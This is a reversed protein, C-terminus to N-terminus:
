FVVEPQTVVIFREDLHPWLIKKVGDEGDWPLRGNGCGPRPMAVRKWGMEDTLGQLEVVSQAILIRDAEERWHHKVPFTVLSFKPSEIVTRLMSVLADAPKETISVIELLAADTGDLLALKFLFVHNGKERLEQGLQSPLKHSSFREAAERACGRGMVAEGSAKVNGNTTIVVADAEVSWLDAEMEIVIFGSM